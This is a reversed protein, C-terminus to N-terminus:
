PDGFGRSSQSGAHADLEPELGADAVLPDGHPPTKSGTDRLSSTHSPQKHRQWAKYAVFGLAGAALMKLIGM